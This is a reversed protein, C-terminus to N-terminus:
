PPTPGRRYGGLVASAYGNGPDTGRALLEGVRSPGRNYALLAIRLDGDYRALLDRFFRFGIRLNVDPDFLTARTVTSDYFVATRPMVQTLGIAGASSVARPNFGSEIRVIEFGLGPDLGVRLAADYIRATLDAPINFRGSFEIIAQARELELNVLELEGQTADLSTRLKGFEAVTGTYLANERSARAGRPLFSLAAGIAVLLAFIGVGRLILRQTAPIHTGSTRTMM